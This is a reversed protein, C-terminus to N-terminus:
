RNYFFLRFKETQFHILKTKTKSPIKMPHLANQSPLDWREGTRGVGLVKFIDNWQRQSEDKRPFNATLRITAIQYQIM